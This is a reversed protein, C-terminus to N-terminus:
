LLGFLIYLHFPLHISWHLLIYLTQFYVKGYVTLQNQLPADLCSLAPFSLRELLNHQSLQIDVDLLLFTDM